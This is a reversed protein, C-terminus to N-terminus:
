PVRPQHRQPSSPPRAWAGKIAAAAQQLQAAWAEIRGTLRYLPCSVAVSGWVHGGPDFVPVGVCGLDRDFEEIDTAYGREATRALEAHIADPAVQSQATRAVPPHRDLYRQVTVAPLHALIAKGLAHLTADSRFGVYLASARVARRSETVHTVVIEEDRWQAVYFTENAAHALQDVVHVVTAPVRAQRQLGHYFVAAQAAVYYRRTLPDLEVYGAETLTRVLHYCTSVNWGTQASLWKVSAGDPQSAILELIRLGRALSQIIWPSGM